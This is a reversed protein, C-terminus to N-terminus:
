RTTMKRIDMDQRSEGGMKGVPKAKPEKQRSLDDKTNRMIKDSIAKAKKPRPMVPM